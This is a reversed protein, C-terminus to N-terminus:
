MYNSICVAGATYGPQIAVYSDGSMWVPTFLYDKTNLQQLTYQTMLRPIAEYPYLGSTQQYVCTDNVYFSITNIMDLLAFPPPAIGAQEAVNAFEAPVGTKAFQMDVELFTEALNCKNNASQSWELITKNGNSNIATAGWAGSGYSKAPVVKYSSKLTGADIAIANESISYTPDKSTTFFTDKKEAPQEM